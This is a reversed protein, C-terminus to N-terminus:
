RRGKGSLWNTVLWDAIGRFDHAAQSHQSLRVVTSGGDLADSVSEDQHVPVPLMRQGLRERWRKFVERRVPRTANIQNLVHQHRGSGPVPEWGAEHALLSATDCLWLSLVGDAGAQAQSAYANGGAPTDIIVVGEAESPLAALLEPLAPRAALAQALAAHGAVPLAGFPLLRLLTNPQHVAAALPEGALWARAWGASDTALGFHAALTHQPDYEILTVPLSRESLIVALNAALTTRGVGGKSSMVAIVFM